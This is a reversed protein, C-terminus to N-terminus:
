ASAAVTAGDRLALRLPPRRLHPRLAQTLVDSHTTVLVQGRTMADVLLEALAPLLEAHLSTEPENLALLPPTRPSLLAAALCLYRLTGDSLDAAELPRLLSPVALRFSFRGRDECLELRSGPFAREISAHLRPADGIDQITMLAAALDAGDHGLAVTRVGIQPQRLEADADTRFHHYFRWRALTNHVLSLLPFRHPEALQALLSEAGSLEFPFTARTGAADRVQATGAAGREAVLHRDAGDIIWLLEKKVDPDLKFPSGPEPIPGCTIEYAFDDLAVGVTFSAGASKKRPGAWLVSPLGGEAALSRALAGQAAVSVIRMARYVNTKGSGNPGVIVTLPDLPLRLSRISRYGEIWVEAVPVDCSYGAFSADEPSADIRGTGLWPSCRRRPHREDIRDENSSQSTTPRTPGIESCGVQRSRCRCIGLDPHSM